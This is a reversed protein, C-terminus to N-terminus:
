GVELSRIPADIEVTAFNSFSDSIAYPPVIKGYHRM